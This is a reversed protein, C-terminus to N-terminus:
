QPKAGRCGRRGKKQWWRSRPGAPLFNLFSFLELRLIEWLSELARNDVGFIFNLHLGQNSISNDSTRCPSLGALLDEKSQLNCRGEDIREKIEEEGESIKPIIVGNEGSHHHDEPSQLSWIEIWWWWWLWDGAPTGLSFHFIKFSSM